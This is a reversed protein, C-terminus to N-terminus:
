YHSLGNGQKNWLFSGTYVCFSNVLEAVGDEGRRVWAEAKCWAVKILFTLMYSTRWLLKGSWWAGPITVTEFVKGHHFAGYAVSHLDWYLLSLLTGWQLRILYTLSTIIACARFTLVQSVSVSPLSNSAAQDVYSTSPWDLQISSLPSCLPPLVSLSPLLSPFFSLFFYSYIFLCTLLMAFWLAIPM